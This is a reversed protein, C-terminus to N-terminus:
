MRCLMLLRFRCRCVVLVSSFFVVVMSLLRGVLILKLCIVCVEIVMVLVLISDVLIVRSVEFFSNLSELEVVVRVFWM